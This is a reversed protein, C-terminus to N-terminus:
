IILRGVNAKARERTAERTFYDDRGACADHEDDHKDDHEDDHGDDTRL